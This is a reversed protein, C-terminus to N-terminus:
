GFKGSRPFGRPVIRGAQARAGRWDKLEAPSWTRGNADRLGEKWAFCKADLLHGDKYRQLIVGRGRALEPAEALPFILMKRNKGVVAVTDGEPPNVPLTDKVTVPNGVPAVPVKLEFGIAPPEPEEVNFTKVEEM